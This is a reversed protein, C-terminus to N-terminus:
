WPGVVGTPGGVATGGGAVHHGVRAGVHVWTTTHSGAVHGLVTRRKRGTHAVWPEAVHGSRRTAGTRHDRVRRKLEGSPGSAM